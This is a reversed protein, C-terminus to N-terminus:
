GSGRETRIVVMEPWVRERSRRHAGIDEEGGAQETDRRADEPEMEAGQEITGM